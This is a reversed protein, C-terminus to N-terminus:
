SIKMTPCNRGFRKSIHALCENCYDVLQKVQKKIEDKKHGANLVGRVLDRVGNVYVERVQRIARQFNADKEQRQLVGKWENDDTFEGVLYRVRLVRFKEEYDPVQQNLETFERMIRWAELLYTTDKDATPPNRIRYGYGYNTTGGLARVINQDM